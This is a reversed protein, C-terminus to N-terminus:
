ARFGVPIAYVPPVKLKVVVPGDPARVAVLQIIGAHDLLQLVARVQVVAFRVAAVVVTVVGVLIM